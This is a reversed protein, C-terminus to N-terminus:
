AHRHGPLVGRRRLRRRPDPLGPRRRGAGARPRCRMPSSGASSSGRSRRSASRRRSTGRRRDGYLSGRIGAQIVRAPDLSVRWSRAGSCPATRTPLGNTPTGSTPTPTSTSSASRATSPPTRACSPSRSRTTAASASPRRRPVRRAARPVGARPSSEEIYGPATPADGYDITSLAGFVQVRQVPNYTRIMGSASRIAEPGFRAGARFSTGGDWPLGYVAARRGRPGQRLAAARLNAPRHIAAGDPRGLTPPHGQGDNATRCWSAAAPSTSPSARLGPPPAPSSSSRRWPSDAPTGMRGLPSMGAVKAQAEEDMVRDIRESCPRGRRSSNARIGHPGLRSRWIGPSCPDRGGEGGRLRGADAQRPLAGLDVVHDRDLRQHARDHRSPVARVTVFTSTLNADVVERWEDVTM